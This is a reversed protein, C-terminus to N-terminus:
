SHFQGQNWGGLMVCIHHLHGSPWLLDKETTSQLRLTNSQERLKADTNAADEGDTWKWWHKQWVGETGWVVPEPSSETSPWTPAEGESETSCPAPLLEQKM